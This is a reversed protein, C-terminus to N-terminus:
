RSRAAPSAFPFERGLALDALLRDITVGPTGLPRQWPAFPLMLQALSECAALAEAATMPCSQPDAIHRKLLAALSEKRVCTDATFIRLCVAYGGKIWDAWERAAQAGAAAAVVGSADFCDAYAIRAEPLQALAAVFEDEFLVQNLRAAAEPSAGQRRALVARRLGWVAAPAFWCEAGPPPPGAHGSRHGGLASWWGHERSFAYIAGPACGAGIMEGLEATAVGVAKALMELDWFWDSVYRRDLDTTIDNGM